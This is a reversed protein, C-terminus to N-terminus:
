VIHLVWLCCHYQVMDVTKIICVNTLV